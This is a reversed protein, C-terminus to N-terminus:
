NMLSMVLVFNSQMDGLKTDSNALSSGFTLSFFLLFVVSRVPLVLMHKPSLCLVEYRDSPEEPLNPM